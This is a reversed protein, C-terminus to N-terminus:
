GVLGGAAAGIGAGAVATGGAAALAAAITGAAVIPGIGPILLASVLGVLFGAAGGLLGGGLAGEVAGEVAGGAGTDAEVLTGAENRDRLAAGIQDSTFGANRLEDIAAEADARDQFVAAVTTRGTLDRAGPAPQSMTRVAM